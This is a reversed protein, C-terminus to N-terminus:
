SPAARRLVAPAPALRSGNSFAAARLQSNSPPAQGTLSKQAMELPADGDNRVPFVQELEEGAFVDGFNRQTLPLYVLPAAPEAALALRVPPAALCVMVFLIFLRASRLARPHISKNAM